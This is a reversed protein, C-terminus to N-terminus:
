PKTPAFFEPPLADSIKMRGSKFEPVQGTATFYGDYATGDPLGGGPKFGTQVWEFLDVLEIEGNKLAKVESIRMIKRWGDRLIEMQVVLDIASAIQQRITLLPTSPSANTALLEMRLLADRPSTAHIAFMSGEIGSAMAQLMDVLEGGYIQSCVIRDPRMKMASQMLHRMTIEGTGDLNAPRAHLRVQNKFQLNMDPEREVSILRQRDYVDNVLLNLLTTKGSGTGGSVVINLYNKVAWQLFDRMPQSISEKELLGEWVPLAIHKGAKRIVVMPGDPAIPPMVIHVRSEDALIIDAIPNAASMEIGGLKTLATVVELLHEQSDFTVTEEDILFAQRSAFIRQYGNIMIEFVTPDKLLPELPGFIGNEM